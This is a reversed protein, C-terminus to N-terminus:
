WTFLVNKDPEPPVMFVARRKMGWKQLIRAARGEPQGHFKELGNEEIMIVPKHTKITNRAGLIVSAEFGEVDIKMFTPSLGLNDIKIMMVDNGSTVMGQGTNRQGLKISCFGNENGCAANYRHCRDDTPLQNFLAPVPEFAVVKDFHNLMERTWIGRHAGIDLACSFDTVFALAARLQDLQFDEPLEKLAKTM